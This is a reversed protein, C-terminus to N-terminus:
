WPSATPAGIDHRPWWFLQSHCSLHHRQSSWMLHTSGNPFCYPHQQPRSPPHLISLASATLIDAHHPCVWKWTNESQIYLNSPSKKKKEWHGLQLLTAWDNITLNESCFPEVKALKDWHLLSYISGPRLSSVMFTFVKQFSLLCLWTSKIEERCVAWFFILTHGTTVKSIDCCCRGTFLTSQTCFLWEHSVVCIALSPPRCRALHIPLTSVAHPLFCSGHRKSPQTFWRGARAWGGM